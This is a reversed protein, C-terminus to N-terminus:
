NGTPAASLETFSAIVPANTSSGTLYTGVGIGGAAQLSAASDTVSAGWGSPETSGVKWVKV